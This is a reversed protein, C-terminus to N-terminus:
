LKCETFEMQELKEPTGGEPCVNASRQGYKHDWPSTDNTRSRVATFARTLMSGFQLALKKFVLSYALIISKVCTLYLKLSNKNRCNGPYNDSFHM